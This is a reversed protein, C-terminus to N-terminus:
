FVNTKFYFDFAEKGYCFDRSWPKAGPTSPGELREQLLRLLMSPFPLQLESSEPSAILGSGERSWVRAAPPIFCLAHDQILVM